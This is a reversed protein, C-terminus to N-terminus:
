SYIKGSWRAGLSLHAQFGPTAGQSRELRWRAFPMCGGALSTDAIHTTAFAGSDVGSIQKTLKQDIECLGLVSHM